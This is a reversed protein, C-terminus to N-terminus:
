KGRRQNRSLFPGNWDKKIEGFVLDGAQPWPRDKPQRLEVPGDVGELSLLFANQIKTQREWRFERIPGVDKVRYETV